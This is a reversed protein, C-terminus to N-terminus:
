LGPLEKSLYVVFHLDDVGIAMDVVTGAHFFNGFEHRCAIARLYKGGEIVNVKM